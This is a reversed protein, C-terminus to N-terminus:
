ACQALADLVAAAPLAVVALDVPEPIAGVSPFCPLGALQRYKPNVPFIRGPYGTDLLYRLPRGNIKAFDESAGLIAISQPRLLADLSGPRSAPGDTESRPADHPHPETGAAESPQMERRSM